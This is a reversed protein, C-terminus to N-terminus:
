KKEPSEQEPHRIFEVKEFCEALHQNKQMQEWEEETIAAVMGEPFGKPLQGASGLRVRFLM